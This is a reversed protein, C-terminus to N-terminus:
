KNRRRILNQYVVELEQELVDEPLDTLGDGVADDNLAAATKNTIGFRDLVLEAARLLHTPTIKPSNETLVWRVKEVAHVSLDALDDMRQRRTSEYDRRESAIEERDAEAVREDWEDERAWRYIETRNLTPVSTPGEELARKKYSELLANVSRRAGMTLFDHFARERLLAKSEVRRSRRGM